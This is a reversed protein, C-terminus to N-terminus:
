PPGAATLFDFDAGNEAQNVSREYLGRYGRKKTRETWVKSQNSGDGEGKGEAIKKKEALRRGIEKEDVELRLLRKEVNCTIMDGDEVIGFISEPVVSEPSIHLVITGGATGSM